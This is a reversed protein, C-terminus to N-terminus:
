KGDILVMIAAVRPELSKVHSGILYHLTVSHCQAGIGLVCKSVLAMGKKHQLSTRCTMPLAFFAKPFM